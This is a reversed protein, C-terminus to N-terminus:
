PSQQVQCQVMGTAPVVRIAVVRDDASVTMEVDSGDTLNGLPGFAFRRDNSCAVGAAVTESLVVENTQDNVVEYDAENVVLAFGEANAAAHTIALRRALRLAGVIQAGTLEAQSRRLAAFQLRPIAVGALVTLVALVVILETVTYAKRGPMSVGLWM